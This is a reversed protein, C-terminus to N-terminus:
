SERRKRKKEVCWGLGLVCAVVGLVVGLLILKSHDKPKQQPTKEMELVPAPAVTIEPLVYGYEVPLAEISKEDWVETLTQWQIQSGRFEVQELAGCDLFATKDLERLGEPLSIRKLSTCESFANSRVWRVSDPLTIEELATCCYFAGDGITDVGDTLEVTKLQQCGYFCVGSIATLGAPLRVTEVGSNEFAGYELTKLSEPLIAEKLSSSCRFASDGIEELDDNWQVTELGRCDSFANYEISRLGEPFIVEQLDPQGQFAGDAIITTGKPVEVTGEARLAYCLITDQDKRQMLFDGDMWYYPNDESVTLSTLPARLFTTASVEEVSAPLHLSHIGSEDFELDGLGKLGEPLTLETLNECRIFNYSFLYELSKPLTVERLSTCESFCGSISIVSEPLAVTELASCGYLVGDLQQVGYPIEVARLQECGQFTEKWNECGGSLRAYVVPTGVFASAGVKTITDPLYVETLGTNWFAEDQITRLGEPLSIETLASCGWFCSNAITTLGEPLRVSGLATCGQFCSEDIKTVTDPITIEALATCGDFANKGLRTVDPGISVWQLNECEKMAGDGLNTVGPELVLATIEDRSDKWPAHVVYNHMAGAGSITLVGNELQWSLNAGCTGSTEQEAAGCPLLLITLFVLLMGIRKM